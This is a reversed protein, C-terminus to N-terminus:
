SQPREVPEGARDLTLFSDGLIASLRRVKLGIGRSGGSAALVCVPWVAKRSRKEGNEQLLSDHAALLEGLGFDSGRKGRKGSPTVGGALKAALELKVVEDMGPSKHGAAGQGSLGHIVMGIPGIHPVPDGNLERGVIGAADRLVVDIKGAAHALEGPLSDSNLSAGSLRPQRDPAATARSAAPMAM